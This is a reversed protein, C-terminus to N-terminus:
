TIVKTQLLKKLWFKWAQVGVPAISHAGFGGIEPAEAIRVGRCPNEGPPVHARIM